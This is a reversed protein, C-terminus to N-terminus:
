ESQAGGEETGRRGGGGVVATCFMGAHRGCAAVAARGCERRHVAECATRREADADARALGLARKWVPPACARAAALTCGYSPPPPPPLRPSLTLTVGLRTTIL